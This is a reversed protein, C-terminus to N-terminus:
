AKGGEKAVIEVRRRLTAPDQRLIWLATDAENMLEIAQVVKEQTDAVRLATSAEYYQLLAQQMEETM